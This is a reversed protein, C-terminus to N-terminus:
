EFIFIYNYIMYNYILLEDARALIWSKFTYEYSNFVYEINKPTYEVASTDISLCGLCIRQLLGILLTLENSGLAMLSHARM